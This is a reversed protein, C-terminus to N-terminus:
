PPTRLRSAAAACRLPARGGLVAPRFHRLRASSPSARASARLAGQVREIIVTREIAATHAGRACSDSRQTRTAHRTAHANAETQWCSTKEQTAKLIRM